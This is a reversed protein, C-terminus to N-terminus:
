NTLTLDLTNSFRDQGNFQTNVQVPYTGPALTVGGVTVDITTDNVLDVNTSLPIAQGGVLVATVSGPYLYQGIITFEGGSVATSAPELSSLQPPNVTWASFPYPVYCTPPIGSLSNCIGGYDCLPPYAAYIFGDVVYFGIEGSTGGDPYADQPVYWTWTPALSFDAGAPASQPTFEWWLAANALDAENLITTPPVSYMMSQSTTVSESASVNPGQVGNWGVSESVTTSSSNTYSSEYTTTTAPDAFELGLLGATLPGSTAFPPEGHPSWGTAIGYPSLDNDTDAFTFTTNDQVLYYDAGPDKCSSCGTDTFDRMAYTYLDVEAPLGTADGKFSCHTATALNTLFETPNEDDTTSAEGAAPQPPTPGFRERLWRRDAAEAQPDLNVLCYSSNQPPTRYRSRQLGYLEIEAQGKAPQCNAQEGPRLLRHFRRAQDESAGVIAVTKGVRYARRLLAIVDPDALDRPGIVLHSPFVGAATKEIPVVLYDQRLLDLAGGAASDSAGITGLPGCLARFGEEIRDCSARTESSLRTGSQCREVRQELPQCLPSQSPTKAAAAAALMLSSLLVATLVTLRRM